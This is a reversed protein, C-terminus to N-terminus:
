EVPYRDFLLNHADALLNWTLRDVEGSEPLANSKQFIRVGEETLPGYIGDVKITSFTPYFRELEQLIYQLVSVAFGTDGKKLPDGKPTRPFVAIEKPPTNEAVSARWARYLAEWTALDASGTEPLGRSKQFALLSTRTASDFVGDIPPPPIEPETFSLQRLYRQLNRTAEAYTETQPM